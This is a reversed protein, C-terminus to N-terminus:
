LLIWAMVKVLHQLTGSNHMLRDLPNYEGDGENTEKELSLLLTKKYFRSMERENKNTSDDNEDQQIPWHSQPQGLWSPRDQWACGSNLKSPFLGKTLCDAINEETPIHFWDEVNNKM